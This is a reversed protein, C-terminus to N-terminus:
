VSTSPAEVAFGRLLDDVLRRGLGPELPHVITHADEIARKSYAAKM